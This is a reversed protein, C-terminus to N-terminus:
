YYVYNISSPLIRVIRGIALSWELELRHTEFERKVVGIVVETVGVEVEIATVEVLTATVVEIFEIATAKPM